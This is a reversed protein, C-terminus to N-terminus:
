AKRLSFKERPLHELWQWIGYERFQVDRHPYQQIIQLPGQFYRQGFNRYKHATRFGLSWICISGQAHKITIKLGRPNQNPHHPGISRPQHSESTSPTIASTCHDECCYQKVDRKKHRTRVQYRRAPGVEWLIEEDSRGSGQTRLQIHQELTPVYVERWREIQAPMTTDAAAAAEMAAADVAAAMDGKASWRLFYLVAQKIINFYKNEQSRYSWRYRYGIKKLTPVEDSVLITM